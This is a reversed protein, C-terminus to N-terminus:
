TDITNFGEQQHQQQQQSTTRNTAEKYRHYLTYTIYGEPIHKTHQAKNSSSDDEM